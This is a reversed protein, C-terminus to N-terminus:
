FRILMWFVSHGMEKKVNESVCKLSRSLQFLSSPASLKQAIYGSWLWGSSEFLDLFRWTKCVSFYVTIEYSDYDIHGKVLEGKINKTIAAYLMMM